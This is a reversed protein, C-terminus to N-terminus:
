ANALRRANETKHREKSMGSHADSEAQLSAACIGFDSCSREAPAGAPEGAGCGRSASASGGTVSILGGGTLPPEATLGFFFDAAARSGSSSIFGSITPSASGSGSARGSSGPAPAGSSSSSIAAAGGGGGGGAGAGAGDEDSGAPPLPGGGSKLAPDPAGGGWGLGGTAVAGAGVGRGEALVGGLGDAVGPPLPSRPRPPM